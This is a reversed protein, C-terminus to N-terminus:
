IKTVGMEGFVRLYRAYKPKEGWITKYASKGGREPVLTNNIKTAINAAEAWLKGQKDKPFRAVNLM